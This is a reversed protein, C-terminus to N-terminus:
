YIGDMDARRIRLLAPKIACIVSGNAGDDADVIVMSIRDTSARDVLEVSATIIEANWFVAPDRGLFLIDSGELKRM